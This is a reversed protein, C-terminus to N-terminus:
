SIIKVVKGDKIEVSSYWRHPEPFQPGAVANRGDPVHGGFPGPQFVYIDDGRKFSERFAKKTKFNCTTYIM